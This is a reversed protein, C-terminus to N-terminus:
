ERMVMQMNSLDYGDLDKAAQDLLMKQFKQYEGAYRSDDAQALKWTLVGQILLWQWRRLLTSYITATLDTMMLNIYYRQQLGYTGDPVPYLEFAGYTSDSLPYFDVPKSMYDPTTLRDREWIPKQNLPTQDNVVLYTTSTDPTTGYAEAMTCVKTTTNYDDVQGAQDAGTGGTFFLLHGEVDDQGADEAAALTLSSTSAVASLTGTHDGDLLSLTLDSDYDSPNAYKSVGKKLTKYRVTKLPRWKEGLRWIEQKVFELGYDTARTIESASPSSLGYMKLAETVITTATPATPIAM